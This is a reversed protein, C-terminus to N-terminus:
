ALTLPEYRSPLYLFQVYITIPAACTCVSQQHGGSKTIRRMLARHLNQRLIPM